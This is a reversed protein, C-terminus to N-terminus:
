GHAQQLRGVAQLVATAASQVTQTRQDLDALAADGAGQFAAAVSTAQARNYQEVAQNAVDVAHNGADVQAQLAVFLAAASGDFAQKGARVARLRREADIERAHLERVNVEFPEARASLLGSDHRVLLAAGVCGVAAVLAVITVVLLTGSRRQRRVARREAEALPATM